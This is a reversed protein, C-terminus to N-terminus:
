FVSLRRWLEGRLAMAMDKTRQAAGKNEVARRLLYHLCEEATGWALYKFVGPVDDRSDMRNQQLDVAM